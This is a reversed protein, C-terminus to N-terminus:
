IYFYRFDKSLLRLSSNNKNLWAAPALAAGGNRAPRPRLGLILAWLRNCDGRRRATERKGSERGM